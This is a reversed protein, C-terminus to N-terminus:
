SVWIYGSHAPSKVPNHSIPVPPVGTPYRGRGAYARHRHRPCRRHPATAPSRSPLPPATATPSSDLPLRPASAAPPRGSAVQEALVQKAQTATLDGGTEMAVLAALGAADLKGVDGTLDNGVRNLM